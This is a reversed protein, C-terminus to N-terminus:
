ECKTFDLYYTDGEKITGLLNPNTIGMVLEGFPTWRAFDNDENEGNEGYEKAGVASMNVQESIVTETDESRFTDVRTVEFKARM